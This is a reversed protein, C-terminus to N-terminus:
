QIIRIGGALIPSLWEKLISEKIAERISENLTARIVEEVLILQLFGDKQFPGCVEGTKASFIKASVEPPFLQRSVLGAYGGAYRTEEDLSHTRALAHFDEGEETIQIIIEQALHESNVMIVSVRACDFRSRHNVFYEEIKKSSALRERVAAVLLMSECFTEFDEETLGSHELFKLMDEAGHLGRLTRFTDAFQQLEEDSVKCNLEQAKKVIERSKILESITKSQGTLFLFKIVEEPTITGQAYAIKM